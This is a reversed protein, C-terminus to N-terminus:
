VVQTPNIEHRFSNGTFTFKSHYPMRLPIFACLAPFLINIATATTELKAFRLKFCEYCCDKVALGSPKM